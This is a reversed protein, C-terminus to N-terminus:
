SDKDIIEPFAGQNVAICPKGSALTEVMIMSWEDHFATIVLAICESYLRSLEESSVRGLFTINTAGDALYKLYVEQTGSGEIYLKKDPMKKFAEIALEVRKGPEFRAVLLYYDKAPKNCFQKTDVLPNIIACDIGYYDDIIRKSYRSIAVVWKIDKVTKKDYGKIRWKWLKSGVKRILSERIVMEKAKKYFLTSLGYSYWIKNKHNAYISYYGLCIVTSYQSLDLESFWKILQEQKLLPINTIGDSVKVKLYKFIPLINDWNAYGAYVDAQYEKALFSVLKEGGGRGELFDILIAVKNKTM